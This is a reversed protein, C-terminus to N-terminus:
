DGTQRELDLYSLVKDCHGEISLTRDCLPRIGHKDDLSEVALQSHYLKM